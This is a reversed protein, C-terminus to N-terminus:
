DEDVTMSQWQEEQSQKIADVEDATMEQLIINNNEETQEPDEKDMGLAYRKTHFTNQTVKSAIELAKYDNLVASHPLGKANVDQIVALLQNEILSAFKVAKDRASDKAIVLEKAQTALQDQIAQMAIHEYYESRAGQVWGNKKIQYKVQDAGCGVEQAIDTASYAGQEWLGRILALQEISLKRTKATTM